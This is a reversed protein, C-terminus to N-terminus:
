RHLGSVTRVLAGINERNICRFVTCTLDLRDVGPAGGGDRGRLGGLHPEVVDEVGVARGEVGRLHRINAGERQAALLPQYAALLCHTNLTKKNQQM